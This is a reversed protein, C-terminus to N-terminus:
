CLSSAIDLVYNSDVDAAARTSELQETQVEEDDADCTRKKQVPEESIQQQIYEPHVKEIHNRM